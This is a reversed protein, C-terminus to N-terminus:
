LYRREETPTNLKKRTVRRGRGDYTYELQLGASSTVNTLKGFDDWTYTYTVGGATYKNFAARQAYSPLSKCRLSV